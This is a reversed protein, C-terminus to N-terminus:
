RTVPISVPVLSIADGDAVAELVRAIRERPVLLEVVQGRSDNILGKSELVRVVTASGVLVAPPGFSRDDTVAASWVDAVSGSEISRSLEGGVRVVVSAVRLSSAAGVASAPVLEGASVSRTVLVGEAPVDGERLYQDDAIGLRVSALRLDSPYVHDGPTFTSSAAYVLVSRDAAAVVGVVGAVSAIVLGVGIALRPDFWFSKPSRQKRMPDRTGGM